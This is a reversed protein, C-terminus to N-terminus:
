FASQESKFMRDAAALVEFLFGQLLSIFDGRSGKNYDGSLLYFIAKLINKVLDGYLGYEIQKLPVIICLLVFM